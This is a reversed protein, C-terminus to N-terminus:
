DAHEGRLARSLVLAVGRHELPVQLCVSVEIVLQSLSGDLGSQERGELAVPDEGDMTPAAEAHLAQILGDRLTNHGIKLLGVGRPSLRTAEPKLSSEPKARGQEHGDVGVIDPEAVAVDPQDQGVGRAGRAVFERHRKGAAIPRDFM